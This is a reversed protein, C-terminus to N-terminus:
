HQLWGELFNISYPELTFISQSKIVQELGIGTLRLKSVAETYNDPSLSRMRFLGSCCDIKVPQVSSTFNVLMARVQKGDTLALCETVLPKSSISKVASFDKNGLLFRFVYYVPFIMGRAVPFESPWQSAHDGQIIGREGVTEYYTISEAGSECLHKLSGVTWCAGFLSVLRSDVQPPLGSGSWPMEFLTKSANFRRQITVPSIIIGKKGAFRSASIVSYEQAKLNEVLTTNDSAHEQPHISYCIYDNGTDGPRNRNLQAFNANTGTGTKIDTDM